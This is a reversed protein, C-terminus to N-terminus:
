DSKLAVLPDIRAAHRAPIYSALMVVPVLVAAVRVFTGPDRPSVEYLFAALQPSVVISVLSGGLVGLGVVALADRMAMWVLHSRTAGLALRIGLEHTRRRVLHSTVSYVGVVALLLALAAFGVVHQLLFRRDAIANALADSLTSVQAIPLAPDIRRLLPTVGASIARPGLRTRVVVMVRSTRTQSAFHTALNAPIKSLLRQNGAQAFPEYYESRPREDRGFRKMDDVVGVITSWPYLPGLRIRRGVPDTNSWYRSAMARNIIVVPPSEASEFATFERGKLLPIRMTRFFSSDVESAIAPYAPMTSIAGAAGPPPPPPAPVRWGLPMPEPPGSIQVPGELQVMRMGLAGSHFPLNSAAGVDVVGNLSRIRDTVDAVFRAVEADTGYRSAPLDFRLTVANASDFGPEFAQIRGLSELLLGAGILLVMTLAIQISGPLSDALRGRMGTGTSMASDVGGRMTFDLDLRTTARRAPGVSFLVGAVTAVLIGFLMVRWDPTSAVGILGRTANGAIVGRGIYALLVGAIGGLLSLILAETVLQRVVRERGAGLAVRIALEQRRETSRITMLTAFNLCCVALIVLATLSLIRVTPVFGQFMRDRVVEVVATQAPRLRRTASTLQWTASTLTSGQRLSGFVELTRTFEEYAKPGTFALPALIDSDPFFDFRPSLIGVIRAARGDVDLTAGLVDRSSGFRSVWLRHSIAVVREGGDGFESQLFARGLLPRLPGDLGFLSIAGASVRHGKVLIPGGDAHVVFDHAETATLHDFSLSADALRRFAPISFYRSLDTSLVVLRDANPYPWPRILAADVLVFATTTGGVGIAVSACAALALGPSRAILRCGHRVDLRLASAARVIWSHLSRWGSNVAGSRLIRIRRDVMEANSGLEACAAM